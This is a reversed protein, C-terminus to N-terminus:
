VVEVVYFHFGGDPDTLTGSANYFFVRFASSSPTVLMSVIELTSSVPTIFVVPTAPFANFGVSFDGTGNKGVTFGSGGDVVGLSSIQGTLSRPLQVTIRTNTGDDAIKFASASNDKFDIIPEAAVKVDNHQVTVNGSVASAVNVVQQQAQGALPQAFDGM